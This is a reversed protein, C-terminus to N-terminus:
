PWDGETATSVDDVAFVVQELRGVRRQTEDLRELRIGVYLAGGVVTGMMGLAGLAVAGIIRNERRASEVPWGEISRLRDEHDDTSKRLARIRTQTNDERYGPDSPPEPDTM